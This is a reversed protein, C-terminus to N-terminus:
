GAGHRRMAVEIKAVIWLNHNWFDFSMEGAAAEQRVGQPPRCSGSRLLM